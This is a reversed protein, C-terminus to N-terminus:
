AAAFPGVAEAATGALEGVPEVVGDSEEFSSGVVGDPDPEVTGVPLDSPNWKYESVTAVYEYM